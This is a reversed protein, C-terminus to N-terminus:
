CLTVVGACGEVTQPIRQTHLMAAGDAFFGRIRVGVGFKRKAAFTAFEEVEAGPGAFFIYDAFGGHVFREEFVHILVGFIFVM